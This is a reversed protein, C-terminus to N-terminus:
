SGSQESAGESVSRILGSVGAWVQCKELSTPAAAAAASPSRGRGAVWMPPRSVVGELRLQQSRSTFKIRHPLSTRPSGERAGM